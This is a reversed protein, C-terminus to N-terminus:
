LRPWPAAIKIAYLFISNNVYHTNGYNFPEYTKLFAKDSFPNFANEWIDAPAVCCQTAAFV